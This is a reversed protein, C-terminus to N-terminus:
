GSLAGFLTRVDDAIIWRSGAAIHPTLAVNPLGILGSPVSPEEPFVDLGAGRITKDRLAAELAGMDVLLGRGTNVLIGDPGLAELFTADVVHKLEPAYALHVTLADAWQPLADLEMWTVGLECELETYRSRSWYAVNMGICRGLRM